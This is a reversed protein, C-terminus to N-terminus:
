KPSGGLCLSSLLVCRYEKPCEEKVATQSAFEVIVHIHNKPPARFFEDLECTPDELPEGGLVSEIAQDRPTYNAYLELRAKDSTSVKVRWLSLQNTAVYNLEPAKKSKVIRDKLDDVTQDNDVNVSFAKSLPQGHVLCFVAM